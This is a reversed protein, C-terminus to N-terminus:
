FGCVKHMMLDKMSGAIPMGMTGGYDYNSLPFTNADYFVIRHEAVM